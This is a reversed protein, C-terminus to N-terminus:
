WWEVGKYIARRYFGGGARETGIGSFAFCERYFVRKWIALLKM